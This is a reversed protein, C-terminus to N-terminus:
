NVSLAADSIASDPQAGGSLLSASAAGGSLVNVRCANVSESRCERARM